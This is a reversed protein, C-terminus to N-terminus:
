KTMKCSKCNGSCSGCDGEIASKKLYYAVYGIAGTLIIGLIWYEM